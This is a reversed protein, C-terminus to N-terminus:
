AYFREYFARIIGATVGWIRQGGYPMDFYKWELGNWERSGQTHNGPHMLFSLPVEFVTEVEDENIDLEFGPQIIGIIPAIRFGSGAIYDPMRGIVEVQDPRIGIEEETERQAAFEASPDTDDIRGGPFAVQGSHARLAETRKTLIVTTEGPHDVVPILVAADRVKLKWLEQLRPHEPNWRHDGYDGHEDVADGVRIIRRRLDEVSFRQAATDM